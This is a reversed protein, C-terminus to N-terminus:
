LDDDDSPKEPVGPMKEGRKIREAVIVWANGRREWGQEVVTEHVVGVSDLHWVYRVQVIAAKRGDSFKVREIEYDDIRLEDDLEDRADLFAERESPLRYAVAAEYRRWRLGEQYERLRDLFDEQAKERGACASVALAVQAVVLFWRTM